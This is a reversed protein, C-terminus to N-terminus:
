LGLFLYANQIAWVGWVLAFFVLSVLQMASGMDKAKKALPHIELSALDIANEIASNALEVILCLFPPTILLIKESFGEGLFLGLPTFIAALLAVQRFAAEDRFAAALGDRSYFLAAVVRRAGSKGKKENRTPNKSPSDKHSSDQRPSDNKHSDKSSSDVCRVNQHPSDKRSSDQIQSDARSSDKPNSDWHNSDERPSDLLGSDESGVGGRPSDKRRSDKPKSDGSGFDVRSSDRREWAGSDGRSDRRKTSDKAM